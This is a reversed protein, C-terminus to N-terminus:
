KLLLSELRNVQDASLDKQASVDFRVPSIHTAAHVKEPVFATGQYSSSVFATPTTSAKFSAVSSSMSEAITTSSTPEVVSSSAATSTTSATVTTSIPPRPVSISATKDAVYEKMEDLSLLQLERPKMLSNSVTSSVDSSADALKQGLQLQLQSTLSQASAVYEKMAVSPDLNSSTGISQKVQSQMSQAMLSLDELNSRTNDVYTPFQKSYTQMEQMAVKAEKGSNELQQAVKQSLLTFQTSISEQTKGLVSQFEERRAPFDAQQHELTTRISAVGTEVAQGDSQLKSSLSDLTQTAAYQVHQVKNMLTSVTDKWTAQSKPVFARVQDLKHEVDFTWQQMTEHPHQLSSPLLALYQAHYNKASDSITVFQKWDQLTNLDFAKTEFHRAVDAIADPVQVSHAHANSMVNSLFLNLESMDAVPAQFPM